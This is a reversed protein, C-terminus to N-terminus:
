LYILKLWIDFNVIFTTDIQDSLPIPQSLKGVV